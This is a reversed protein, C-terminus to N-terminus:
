RETQPEPEIGQLLQEWAGPYEARHTALLNVVDGWVGFFSSLQALELAVQSREDLLAQVAEPEGGSNMSLTKLTQNLEGYRQGVSWYHSRLRDAVMRVTAADGQTLLANALSEREPVTLYSDEALLADRVVAIAEPTNMLQLNMPELREISGNLYIDASRDNLDCTLTLDWWLRQGPQVTNAPLSLSVLGEQSSIDNIEQYYVLSEANGGQKYLSFEARVAENKPIYFWLTTNASVSQAIAGNDQIPLIVRFAKLTERDFCNGRIVSGNPVATDGQGNSAGPSPLYLRSGAGATSDPSGRGTQPLQDLGSIESTVPDAIPLPYLRAGYVPMQLCVLGASFLFFHLRVLQKDM